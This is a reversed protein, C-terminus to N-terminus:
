RLPLGLLETVRAVTPGPETHLVGTMGIAEAASVNAAIDDIFVCEEPQLGILAVAHRLKRSDMYEGIEDRNKEFHM